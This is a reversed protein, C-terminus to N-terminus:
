FLFHGNIIKNPIEGQTSGLDRIPLRSNENLSLIPISFAKFIYLRNLRFWFHGNVKNPIEGWTSGFDWIPLRSNANLSLILISFAERIYLRNLRFLFIAMSSKILFREKLLDYIGSPFDQIKM